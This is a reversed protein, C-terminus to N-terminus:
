EKRYKKPTFKQKALQKTLRLTSEVSVRLIEKDEDTLPEDDDFCAIGTKPDLDDLINKLKKQIHREDKKNLTPLSNDHSNSSEKQWGMIESPSLNLANALKVIASRRMNAIEGSEWRSITGESVGVRNSLEKMTLGLEIRRNKIIDKVSDM